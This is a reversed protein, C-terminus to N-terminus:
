QARQIQQLKWLFLCSASSESLVIYKRARKSSILALESFARIQLRLHSRDRKNPVCNNELRNTLLIKFSKEYSINALYLAKFGGILVMRM